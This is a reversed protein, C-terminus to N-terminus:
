QVRIKKVSNEENTEPPRPQSWIYRGVEDSPDEELASDEDPTSNKSFNPRSREKLRSNNERKRSEGRYVVENCTKVQKDHVLRVSNLRVNNTPDPPAVQSSNQGNLLQGNPGYGHPYQGAPRFGGTGQGNTVFHPPFQANQVLGPVFQGNSVFENTAYDVPPSGKQAFGNFNQPKKAYCDRAMHGNKGCNYCAIPSANIRAKNPFQMGLLPKPNPVKSLRSELEAIKKGQEELKKKLEDNHNSKTMKRMKKLESIVENQFKVENSQERATAERLRLSDKTWMELQLAIRFASDLDKPDRERIKLAFDPDALADLFYDRSIVERTKHEMTPFALAALRRIEIHLSQLTENPARRKNRIEIRHKDAYSKGGFRMKLIRTLGSLSNAIEKGYDWLVNAVEKDLSSRM